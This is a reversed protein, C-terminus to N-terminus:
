FNEIYYIYKKKLKGTFPIIFVRFGTVYGDCWFDTINSNM